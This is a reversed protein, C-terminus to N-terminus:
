WDEDRVGGMARRQHLLKQKMIAVQEEMVEINKREHDISNAYKDGTEHLKSLHEQQSSDMPRNSSRMILAIDGKIGDNDKRLKDITGQQKRLLAQSEEAYQRRNLEMHRYQRQLEMLESQRADPAATGTM